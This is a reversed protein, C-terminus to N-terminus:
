TFFFDGYYEITYFEQELHNGSVIKM